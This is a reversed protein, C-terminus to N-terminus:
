KYKSIKVANVNGNARTENFENMAKIAINCHERRTSFDNAYDCKWAGMQGTPTSCKCFNCKNM